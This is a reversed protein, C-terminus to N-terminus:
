RLSLTQQDVARGGYALTGDEFCLVYKTPSSGELVSSILYPGDLGRSGSV